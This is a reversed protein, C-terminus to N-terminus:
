LRRRKMLSPLLHGLSHRSYTSVPFARTYIDQMSEVAVDFKSYKAPITITCGGHFIPCVLPRLLLIRKPGNYLRPEHGEVEPRTGKM